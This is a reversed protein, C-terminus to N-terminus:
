IRNIEGPAFCAELEKADKALFRVNGVEAELAREMAVVIADEVRELAILLTDSMSGAVATTFRGKGCGIELHLAKYETGNLWGGLREEPNTELLAACREMRPVLNPKKRMRM